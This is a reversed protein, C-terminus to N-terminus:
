GNIQRLTGLLKESHVTNLMRLEPIKVLLKEYLAMHEQHNAKMRDQLCRSITAQLREVLEAGRLGPRDSFYM